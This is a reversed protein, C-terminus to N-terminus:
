LYPSRQKNKQPTAITIQPKSLAIATQKKTPPSRAKPPQQPPSRQNIKTLDHHQPTSPAIAPQNKIPAIM